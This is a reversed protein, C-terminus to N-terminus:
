ESSPAVYDPDATPMDDSAGSGAQAQSSWTELEAMVSPHKDVCLVVLDGPNARSMAHRVADIETLVVEVQKCRTGVTMATRVGEAVLDAIDGRQRGRLAEDERVVVVDFHQAAIHGLERMDEDRRDGATAIVGIRSPRALEHSAKLSDGVRDVFDGLMRMGPANHCYDVIVNVGNVEVENLRGPSLYYNTSFTRLGQRIDHLPAGAAFAAAAAGLANQVNMRARGGFTAPLLHTWALQMERRGHKVVIMEGRESPELVLAKGGRRCHTDIMERTESGPEAMSFWVVQGSCRRRMERVLPDDANLVAHGDRPVAEVLVAKVDALQEVTDIGRLGLHDPQVNLVVAVDNREYGLGERLIGGRAVEFVAFDVRPNQLV